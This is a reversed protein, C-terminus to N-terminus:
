IKYDKFLNYFIAYLVNVVISNGAQKYLQSDSLGMEKANYFNEDKFGMLRWCELPTLKRIRFNAEMNEIVNLKNGANSAPITGLHKNEYFARDQQSAYGKGSVDWQIYNEKEDFYQRRGKNDIFFNTNLKREVIVNDKEVTTLTNTFGDDRLELKQEIKGNENYRGRIAGNDIIQKPQKYDTATLTSMVGNVGYTIDRQGITRNEPASTDVINLENRNEDSKGNLKFRDQITQSLYYKEEVNDELIDKLRIGYDKGQPFKFNGDDIDKRICIVFIRDRNQPIGFHKANLCMPTKNGNKDEKTPYYCNYGIEELEEIIGYFDDIFKTQILGKVNEIMVYKPKKVRIAKIGYIYLGSRTPTGDPNRMGRQKGSNSLDTCSFSFNMLDFNPIEEYDIKAIDGLNNLLVNAKYALRLKDKKMRPVSSRDKEYSYGINRDMLWKKMEDDSPYEFEIDKFNDIHSAAYSITADIDIESLSTIKTPVGLDKLSQHLAGIGAFVDFVKVEEMLFDYKTLENKWM